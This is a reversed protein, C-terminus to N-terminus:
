VALTGLATEEVGQSRPLTWWGGEVQDQLSRIDWRVGGSRICINRIRTGTPPPAAVLGVEAPVVVVSAVLQEHGVLIWPGYRM